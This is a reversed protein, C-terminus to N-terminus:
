VICGRDEWEKSALRAAFVEKGVKCASVEGSQRLQKSCLLWLAALLLGALAGGVHVWHGTAGAAAAVLTTRLAESVELGIWGMLLASAVACEWWRSGGCWQCIVLAGAVGFVAGSAGVVPNPLPLAVTHAVMGAFGAILYLLLFRLSGLRREVARGLFCLFLMNFLLHQFSAHVFMSTLVSWLALAIETVKGSALRSVFQVPACGMIQFLVGSLGARIAPLEALFCVLCGMIILMTVVPGCSLKRTPGRM